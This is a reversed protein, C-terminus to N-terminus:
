WDQVTGDERRYHPHERMVFPKLKDKILEIGLGPADGMYLYGDEYTVDYKLHEPKPGSIWNEQCYFNPTAFDVHMVAMFGVHPVGHPVMEMYHSEAYAAIKKM